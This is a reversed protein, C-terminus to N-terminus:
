YWCICSIYYVVDATFSYLHSTKCYVYKYLAVASNIFVNKGFISGCIRNVCAMNKEPYLSCKSSAWDHIAHRSM